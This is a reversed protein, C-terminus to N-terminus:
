IQLKNDFVELQNYRSYKSLRLFFSGEDIIDAISEDIFSKNHLQNSFRNIALYSLWNVQFQKKKAPAKKAAPKAPAPKVATKKAPAKKATAM